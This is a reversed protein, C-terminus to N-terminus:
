AFPPIEEAETVAEIVADRRFIRRKGAKVFPVRHRTLWDRAAKLRNAREGAQGHKSARCSGLRLLDAVDDTTLFFPLGEAAGETGARAPTVHLM